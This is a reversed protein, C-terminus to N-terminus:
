LNDFSKLTEDKNRTNISGYMCPILRYIYDVLYFVLCHPQTVNPMIMLKTITNLLITLSDTSMTFGVGDKFIEKLLLYFLVVGPDACALGEALSGDVHASIIRRM